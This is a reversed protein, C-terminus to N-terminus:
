VLADARTLYEGRSGIAAATYLQGLKNRNSLKNMKERFLDQETVLGIINNKDDVIPIKELRNQVLQDYLYVKDLENMNLKNPKTYVQLQERKTM